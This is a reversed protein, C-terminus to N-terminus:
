GLGSHRINVSAGLSGPPLRPRWKSQQAHAGPRVDPRDGARSASCECANSSADTLISPGEPSNPSRPLWMVVAPVGVFILMGCYSWGLNQKEWQVIGASRWVILLTQVVGYVVLIELVALLKTKTSSAPVDSQVKGTSTEALSTRM